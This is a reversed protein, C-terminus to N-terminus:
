LQKLLLSQGEKMEWRRTGNIEELTITERSINTLRLRGMLMANVEANLGQMRKEIMYLQVHARNRIRGAYFLCNTNEPRGDVVDLPEFQLIRDTGPLEFGNRVMMILALASGAVLAGILLLATSRQTTHTKTSDIVAKPQEAM